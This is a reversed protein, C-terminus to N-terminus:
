QLGGGVIGPREHKARVYRLVPQGSTEELARSAGTVRCPRRRPHRHWVWSCDEIKEVSAACVVGVPRPAHRAVRVEDTRPRAAPTGPKVGREWLERRYKDHDYDRDAVLREARRRPRGVKGRVPGVGDLLPLLQTVDSRHGGTLTVQLPVGGADTLLHHKSGTKARDIPSPGTLAGKFLASTAQTPSRASWDIAGAANLRRLVEAHLRAWV